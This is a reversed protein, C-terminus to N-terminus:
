TARYLGLYASKQLENSFLRMINITGQTFSDLETVDIFTDEGHAIANRRKLLIVDIFRAEGVFISSEVGCVRCIDLLAEFNLNSRTNILDENVRSFRNINGSLILDVIEGREKISKQNVTALRPLFENRLFQM